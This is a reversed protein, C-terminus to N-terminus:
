VKRWISWWKALTFNRSNATSREFEQLGFAVSQKERNLGVKLSFRVSELAQESLGPFKSRVSEVLQPDPDETLQAIESHIRAVKADDDSQADALIAEILRNVRQRQFGAGMRRATIEAAVRTDGEYSGDKFLVTELVLSPPRPTEVVSGNSTTGSRSISFQLQYTAGPAILDKSESDETQGQGGDKEPMDVHVATVAKTSLNRLALKYFTRDEGIIEVQISSAKSMTLPRVSSAPQAPVIKLTLPQLGFREMESLKISDNLEASYSGVKEQPLNYLSVPTARRDFDGYFVSATILVVDGEVKYELQLASPQRRNTDGGAKRPLSGDYFLSSVRNGALTVYSSPFGGPSPIEVAFKPEQPPTQGKGIGALGCTLLLLCVAPHGTM